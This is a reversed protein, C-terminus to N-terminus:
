NKSTTSFDFYDYITARHELIERRQANTLDRWAAATDIDLNRDRQTPTIDRVAIRGFVV